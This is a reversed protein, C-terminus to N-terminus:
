LPRSFTNGFSYLVRLFFLCKASLRAEVEAGFMGQCPAARAGAVSHHMPHLGSSIWEKFSCENVRRGYEQIEWHETYEGFRKFTQNRLRFNYCPLPSAFSHLDHVACPLGAQSALLLQFEARAGKALWSGHPQMQGPPAGKGLTCFLM